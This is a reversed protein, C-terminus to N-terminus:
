ASAIAPSNDGVNRSFDIQRQLNDQEVDALLFAAWGWGPGQNPPVPNAPTVNGPWVPTDDYGPPFGGMRDHYNHLAVGIQKLNNLCSLRNASERVKQVAPLIFAVLIAIIAIVVLLEILTFAARRRNM